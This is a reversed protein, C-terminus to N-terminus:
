VKPYNVLFNHWMKQLAGIAEGAAQETTIVSIVTDPASETVASDQLMSLNKGDSSLSEDASFMLLIFGTLAVALISAQRFSKLRSEAGRVISSKRLRRK